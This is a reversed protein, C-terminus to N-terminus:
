LYELILRFVRNEQLQVLKFSGKLKSVSKSLARRLSAIALSGHVLANQSLSLPNTM